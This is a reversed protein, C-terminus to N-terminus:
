KPAEGPFSRMGRTSYSKSATRCCISTSEFRKEFSVSPVIESSRMELKEPSPLALVHLCRPMRPVSSFRSYVAVPVSAKM